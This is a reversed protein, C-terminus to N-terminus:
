NKLIHDKMRKWLKEIPNPEPSYTPLFGTKINAAISLSKHWGANDIVLIADNKLTKYISFEDLFIQMTLRDVSDAILTFEKGSASAATYLYFSKFGLKYLIRTRSGKKFKKFWVLGIQSHTYIKSVEVNANDFKPLESVSM